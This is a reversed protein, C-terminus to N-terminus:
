EGEAQVSVPVRCDPHDFWDGQLGNCITVPEPSAHAECPEEIRCCSELTGDKDIMWVGFWALALPKM